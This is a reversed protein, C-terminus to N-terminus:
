GLQNKIFNSNIHIIKFAFNLSVVLMVILAFPTILISAVMLVIIAVLEFGIDIHYTLQVDAQDGKELVTLM